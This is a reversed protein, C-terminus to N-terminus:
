KLKEYIAFYKRVYGLAEWTGQFGAPITFTAPATFEQTEGENPTLRVQGESLTCFEDEEYNIHWKGTSCEYVGTYFEKSPNTYLIKYTCRPAGSIIKAPDVPVWDTDEMKVVPYTILKM